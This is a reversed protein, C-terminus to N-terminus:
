YNNFTNLFNKLNRCDRKIWRTLQLFWFSLVCWPGVVLDVVVVVCSTSSHSFYSWGRSGGM